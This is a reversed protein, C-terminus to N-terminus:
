KTLFSEILNHIKLEDEKDVLTDIVITLANVEKTIQTTPKSTQAMQHGKPNSPAQSTAKGKEQIALVNTLKLLHRKIDKNEDVLQSM